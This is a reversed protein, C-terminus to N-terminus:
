MVNGSLLWNTPKCCPQFGMQLGVLSSSASIEVGDQTQSGLWFSVRSVDYYWALAIPCLSILSKNKMYKENDKWTRYQALIKKQIWLTEKNIHQAWHHESHNSVLWLIGKKTEHNARLKTGSLDTYDYRIIHARAPRLGPTDSCICHVWQSTM